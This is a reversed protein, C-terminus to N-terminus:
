LASFLLRPKAPSLSNIKIKIRYNIEKLACSKGNSHSYISDNNYTIYYTITYIIYDNYM